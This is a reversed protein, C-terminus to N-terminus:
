TKSSHINTSIHDLLSSSNKTVRTPIQIVQQFNHSSIVNLYSKSLAFSQLIDINLDGSFIWDRNGDAVSESLSGFDEVFNAARSNPPRYIILLGFKLNEYTISVKLTEM